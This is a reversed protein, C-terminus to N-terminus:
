ALVGGYHSVDRHSNTYPLLLWILNSSDTESGLKSLIKSRERERERERDRDRERRKGWPTKVQEFHSLSGSSSVNLETGFFSVVQFLSFIGHHM